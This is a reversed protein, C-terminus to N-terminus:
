KLQQYIESIKAKLDLEKKEGGYRQYEMYDMVSFVKESVKKDIIKNKIKQRTDAKLSVGYKAKLLQNLCDYLEQDSSAKKIKRY